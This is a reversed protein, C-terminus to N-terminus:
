GLDAPQYYRDAYGGARWTTHKSMPEDVACKGVCHPGRM